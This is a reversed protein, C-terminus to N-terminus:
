MLWPSYLHGRTKGTEIRGFLYIQQTGTSLLAALDFGTFYSTLRVVISVGSLRRKM